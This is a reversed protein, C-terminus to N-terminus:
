ILVDARAGPKGYGRLVITNHDGSTLSSAVDISQVANPGLHKVDFKKGNVVIRVRDLGPAGNQITLVHEARPVDRFVQWGPEGKRVWSALAGYERRCKGGTVFRPQEIL